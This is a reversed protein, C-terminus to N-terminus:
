KIEEIKIILKDEEFESYEETCDFNGDINYELKHGIHKTLFRRLKDANYFRETDRGFDQGCWYQEKCDHCAIDMTKSM